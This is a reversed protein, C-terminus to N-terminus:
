VREVAVVGCETIIMDLPQDWPEVPLAPVEQAAFGLGIAVVGGGRRLRALTRDYDAVM